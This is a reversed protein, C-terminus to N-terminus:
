PKSCVGFTFGTDVNCAAGEVLCDSDGRCLYGGKANFDDPAKFWGRLFLDWSACETPIHLIVPDGGFFHEEIELLARYIKPQSVPVLVGNDVDLFKYSTGPASELSFGCIAEISFSGAPWMILAPLLSLKNFRAVTVQYWHAGPLVVVGHTPRNIRRDDVSAIDIKTRFIQLPNRILIFTVIESPPREQGDYAKYTPFACGAVCAM